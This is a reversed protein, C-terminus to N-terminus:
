EMDFQRLKRYLTTLAIKMLRAAAAKNGGTFSLVTEIHKKEANDLAFTDPERHSSEIVQAAPIPLQEQTILTGACLITAREIANRLERINGKWHHQQLAAMADAAFAEVPRQHKAAYERLFHAALLPIDQKRERLAPLEIPFVSLRYFLDGRFQGTEIAAALGKNTASILRVDSKQPKVEGLRFYEGSELVRLMKAQLEIPMEGIEDLFLSGGAATEILGKKQRVAGTFAGPGYGFLESELLTSPFSSCNLALFPGDARRSSEHIARAFLEKGTGTEGLLLVASDTAAVKGALAKAALLKESGGIIRAFPDIKNMAVSQRM